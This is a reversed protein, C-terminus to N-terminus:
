EVHTLGMIGVFEHGVELGFKESFDSYNWHYEVIGIAEWFPKLREFYDQRYKSYERLTREREEPSMMPIRVLAEIARSVFEQESLGAREHPPLNQMNEKLLVQMRLRAEPNKALNLIEHKKRFLRWIGGVPYRDVLRGGRFFWYRIGYEDLCLGLVAADLFKALSLALKPTEIGGTRECKESYVGVWGHGSFGVFCKGAGIQKLCGIVREKDDTAIHISTSWGM